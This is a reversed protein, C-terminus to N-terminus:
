MTVFILTSLYTGLVTFYAVLLLYCLPFCGVCLLLISDHAFLIPHFLRLRDYANM